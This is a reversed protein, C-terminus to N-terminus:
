QPPTPRPLPTPRSRPTPSPRPTPNPTPTQTPTVSPTPTPGAIDLVHVVSEWNGGINAFGVCWVRTGVSACSSTEHGTNLDLV